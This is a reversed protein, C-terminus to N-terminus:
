LRGHSVEWWIMVLLFACLCVFFGLVIWTPARDKWRLKPKADPVRAGTDLIAHYQGEMMGWVRNALFAGLLAFAPISIAFLFGTPGLLRGLWRLFPGMEDENLSFTAGNMTMAWLMLSAFALGAIAGFALGVLLQGLPGM